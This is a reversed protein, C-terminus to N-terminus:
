QGFRAGGNLLYMMEQQTTERELVENRYPFRGFQEILQLHKRAFDLNNAIVPRGEEPVARLLAEFLEVCRRQDQLRESHMLPMYLFTRQIYSLQQEFGARLAQGVVERAQQDGAFAEARGRYINRSFQDLVLVLALCSDARERWSDLDGLLARRLLPGFRERIENDIEPGGSFWLTSQKAIDFGDGIDGFWFTLIAAISSEDGASIQLKSM